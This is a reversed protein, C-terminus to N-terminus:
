IKTMTAIYDAGAYEGDSYCFKAEWVAKKGDIKIKGTLMDGDDFNMTLKENKLKWTVAGEEEDAWDSDDLFKVNGNKKFEVTWICDVYGDDAYAMEMEWKGILDDKLDDDKSCSTLGMAITAAVAVMMLKFIEKM